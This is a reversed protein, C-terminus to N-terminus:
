EQNKPGFALDGADGLGPVIYAKATLEDDEAGLWIHAYPFIRRVHDVGESAAIASVIHVSEPKGNELLANICKDLSAGTALMPDAVILVSDKIDPCTVYQMSIEFSGDKHHKRYAAIFACDANDFVDLVGEMLPLGARLIGAIVIKREPIQVTAVGLPTEVEQKIYTIKKSLEYGLINGIKKLNNRFRMRDAQVINDRLQGIIKNGINNSDSLRFVSKM